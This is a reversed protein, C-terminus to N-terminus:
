DETEKNGNNRWIEYLNEYVSGIVEIWCTPTNIKNFLHIENDKTKFGFTANQENFFVLHKEKKWEIIDGEYILKGKRDKLGTCLQIDGKHNTGKIMDCYNYGIFKDDNDFFPVRFRFRDKM